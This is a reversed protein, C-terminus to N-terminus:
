ILSEFAEGESIFNNALDPNNAIFDSEEKGVFLVSGNYTNTYRQFSEGTDSNSPFLYFEAIDNGESDLGEEIWKERQSSDEAFIEQYEETSVFSHVGSLDANRLRYFPTLGEEPERSAVFAPNVTGNEQVGELVFTRDFNPNALIAEKETEGVYLYSGTETSINRFRYLNITESINRYEYLTESADGNDEKLSSVILGEDNYTNTIVTSYDIIGDPPIIEGDINFGKDDTEEVSSILLGQENYTETTSRLYDDTEEVTVTSILLGADNYTNTTVGNEDETSILLGEDNYINTTVGNEDETSILLGRDNYANTTVNSLDPTGDPFPENDEGVNGEFDEEEVSSVLLGEDNYTNTIVTRDNIVGDFVPNPNESDLTAEDTETVVSILLGEDNYTNITSIRQNSSLGVEDYITEEDTSLILGRDNYTNTTTTTYTTFDDYGKFVTSILLGEDDYTNVTSTRDDYTYPTTNNIEDIRSLLLGEDNYTETIIRSPAIADDENFQEAENNL